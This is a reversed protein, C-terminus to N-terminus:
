LRLNGRWPGRRWRRGRRWGRGRGLWLSGEVEWRLRKETELDLSLQAMRDQAENLTQQLVQIMPSQMNKVQHQLEGILRNKERLENAQTRSERVLSRFTTGDEEEEAAPEPPVDEPTEESPPQEEEEEEEAITSPPAPEFLTQGKASAPSSPLKNGSSLFARITQTLSSKKVKWNPEYELEDDALKDISPELKRALVLVEETILDGFEFPTQVHLAHLRQLQRARLLTNAKADYVM